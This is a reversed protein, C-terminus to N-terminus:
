IAGGLADDVVHETWTEGSGDANEWWTIENISFAASLIDPFGDGNIDDADVSEAGYCLSSVVHEASPFWSLSVTGPGESWETGSDLHFGSGWENVPGWVGPGDSWDTQIASGKTLAALVLAAATSLIM